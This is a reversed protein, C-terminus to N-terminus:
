AAKDPELVLDTLVVAGPLQKVLVAPCEAFGTRPDRLAEYAKRKEEGAVILVGWRSQLLLRRSASMRRPPPKPADLVLIHGPDDSLVSGKPFLSAIHGDEGASLFVVDYRGGQKDLERTYEKVGFDEFQARPIFPHVNDAPLESARILPAALVEKVIAFNREPSEIPLIREDVMFIHVREWPIGLGRLHTLVGRASRGGCLGLVMRGNEKLVSDIAEGLAQATAKHLAEPGPEHRYTLGSM